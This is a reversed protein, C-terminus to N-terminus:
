GSPWQYQIVCINIILFMEDKLIVHTLVNIYEKRMLIYVKVLVNYTPIINVVITLQIHTYRKSGNYTLYPYVNTVSVVMTLLTHVDKNM